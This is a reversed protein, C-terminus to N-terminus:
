TRVMLRSTAQCSVAVTMKRMKNGELSAMRDEVPQDGVM